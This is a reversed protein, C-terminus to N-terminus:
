LTRRGSAERFSHISGSCNKYLTTMQTVTPSCCSRKYRPDNENARGTGRGM